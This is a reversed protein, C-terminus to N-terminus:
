VHARGIQNNDAPQTGAPPNPANTRWLQNPLRNKGPQQQLSETIWSDQLTMWVAGLFALSLLALRLYQSKTSPINEDLSTSLRNNEELEIGFNKPSSSTDLSSAVRASRSQPRLNGSDALRRDAPDHLAHLRALLSPTPTRGESQTSPQTHSGIYTSNATPNAAALQRRYEKALISHISAVEVLLSDDDMCKREMGFLKEPELANDLFESVDNASCASMLSVVEMSLPRPTAGARDIREVIGQATPSARLKRGLEEHVNPPLTGDRYSLLTRLTLRM